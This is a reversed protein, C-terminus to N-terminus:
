IRGNAGDNAAAPQADSACTQLVQGPRHSESAATWVTRPPSRRRRAQDCVLAGTYTPWGAPFNPYTPSNPFWWGQLSANAPEFGATDVLNQRRTAYHVM